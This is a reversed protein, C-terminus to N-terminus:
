THGQPRPVHLDPAAHELADLIMSMTFPVELLTAPIADSASRGISVIRGGAEIVSRTIDPALEPMLAGNVFLSASSTPTEFMQGIEGTAEVATVTGTPFSHELTGVLDMRVVPDPEVIVFSLDM